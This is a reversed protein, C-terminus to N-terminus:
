RGSEASPDTSPRGDDSVGNALCKPSSIRGPVHKGVDRRGDIQKPAGVGVPGPQLVQQCLAGTPQEVDAVRGCRVAIDAVRVPGRKVQSVIAREGRRIEHCSAATAGM